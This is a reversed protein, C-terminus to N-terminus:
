RHLAEYLERHLAAITRREVRREDPSAQWRDVQDRAREVADALSKANLKGDQHSFSFVPRQEHYYGCNPAIVTTGLDYCAELWGSHTGFRYPLVCADLGSLYDWLADDDFYPHIRLDVEYRGALDRVAEAIQPRYWYNGPDEVEDHMDVRFQTDPLREAVEAVTQLVPLPDMNARISKLHVGIVFKDPSRRRRGLQELDLVHPHPVVTPERGWRRTIEDAAGPTLTILADAAPILVDLIREHPRPDDHHPNRLDHVTYVLPRDLERLAAILNEMEVPTRQDFGFHIHFIDFDDAHARVWSPELMAPPWWGWPVRAGSSPAPDTLRVVGDVGRPDSLHRVYVHNAPVSAIRVESDGSWRHAGDSCDIRPELGPRIQPHM